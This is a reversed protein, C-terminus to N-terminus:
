SRGAPEGQENCPVSNSIYGTHPVPLGGGLCYPILIAFMIGKFAFAFFRWPGLLLFWAVLDEKPELSPM